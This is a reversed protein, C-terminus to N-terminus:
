AVTYYQEILASAVVKAGDSDFIMYYTGDVEYKFYIMSSVTQGPEIQGVYIVDDAFYPAADSQMAYSPNFKAYNDATIAAAESSNNTITVPVGVCWQGNWVADDSVAQTWVYVDRVNDYEGLENPIDVDSAFTVTLGDVQFSAGDTIAQSADLYGMQDPIARLGTGRSSPLELGISAKSGLLNDFEVTYTGTGGYLIHLTGSASGGVSISGQTLIDDSYYASIDDQEVGSPNSISCYLPSLVRSSEDNNTATAPIGVVIDGNFQSQTNIIKDWSWTSQDTDFSVILSEFDVSGEDLTDDTDDSAANPNEIGLFSCGGLAVTAIAGLGSAIFKARTLM